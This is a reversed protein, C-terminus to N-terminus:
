SASRGACIACRTIACTRAMSCCRAKSRITSGRCCARSRRSAAASQGVLALTTGAPRRDVRRQLANGKTADYSFSVRDFEVDGRARGISKTGTDRELPEDIIEFLSAAATIGRQIVANVNILRKLPTLVMGMSTIFGMFQSASLDSLSAWMVAAVGLVVVYQTLSDGLALVAILRVNFRFNRQTVDNFRREEQERATSCSSSGKATCRSRPSARLTAWRTKFARATAAFPMPEYRRHGARDAPGVIAVLLTLKPSLSLMVVVMVIIAFTDRLLIVVANSIAEAVQETNYTLRSILVGSSNRDFYQSPLRLYRMFVENRLDRIVSRGVWALGYVTLIDM